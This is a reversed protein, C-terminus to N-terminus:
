SDAQLEKVKIDQRTSEAQRKASKVLRKTEEVLEALTNLVKPNVAVYSKALDKLRYKVNMLEGEYKDAIEM